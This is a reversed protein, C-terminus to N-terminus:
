WPLLNNINYYIRELLDRRKTENGNVVHIGLKEIREDMHNMIDKQLQDDIRKELPTRLMLDLLARNNYPVTIENTLMHEGTLALGGWGGFVIEWVFFETWPYGTNEIASRLGTKELYEKFKKDTRLADGRNLAFIKYMSTLYRPRIKKPFSKKGYKKYRSARAVEAVWSKVEVDYEFEKKLDIRKCIDNTNAKGLFAYHRELLASVERFDPHDAPNTDINYIKHKLGLATCIKRAALADTEERPLSVYSFYSFRDQLGKACALTTKSDTGGTLSIAPDAWKDATLKLSNNMVSCIEGLREEYAKGRAESYEERPYIRKIAATNGIRVETNPIIRKVDEYPTLDGPLYWGYWHFLRSRKLKTVYPDEKLDYIDAILQSYASFCKKGDIVAYNAGLMGACDCTATVSEDDIVAFFFVGSVRDLYDYYETSGFELSALHELISTEDSTMSFPQYAHGVLLFSRVDTEVIFAKQAPFVFLQYGRTRYQKWGSLEPIRQLAKQGDNTLLYGYTYLSNKWDAM